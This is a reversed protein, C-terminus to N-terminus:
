PAGGYHRAYRDDIRSLPLLVLLDATNFDPDWAPEGGVWAGLRLYGKLLPPIQPAEPSPEQSLAERPLLRHRPLVRYEIPALHSGAVVEYVRQANLGGDQMGISACGILYDYRHRRMFEAIGHWLLMLVAGGRHAPDVCARGIEVMRPKLHALRTLDFEGDAYFTGLRRAREAPLLRYTGVVAGSEGDVVILHECWADFFDEDRDGKGALRAGLEGAFVRHRLRQAAHVEDVSNAMRVQLRHRPGGAVERVTARITTPEHRFENM